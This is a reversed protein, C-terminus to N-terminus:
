RFSRMGERRLASKKLLLQATLISVVSAALYIGKEKLIPYIANFVAEASELSSNKGIKGGVIESSSCGVVLIDGAKLGSVEILERVAVGANKSIENLM